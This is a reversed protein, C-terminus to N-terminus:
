VDIDKDDVPEIAPRQPQPTSRRIEKVGPHDNPLWGLRRLDSSLVFQFQGFEQGVVDYWGDPIVGGRGVFRAGELRVRDGRRPPGDDTPPVAALVEDVTTAAGAPFPTTQPLPDGERWEGTPWHPWVFPQPVQPESLRELKDLRAALAAQERGLIAQGDVVANNHLAFATTLENLKREAHDVRQSMEALLSDKAIVHDAWKDVVGQTRLITDTLREVGTTLKGVTVILDAIREQNLQQAIELAALREKRTPMTRTGKEPLAGTIPDAYFSTIFEQVKVLQADTLSALTYPRGTETIADRRQRAIVALMEHLKTM